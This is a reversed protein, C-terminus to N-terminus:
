PRFFFNFVASREFSVSFDDTSLYTLISFYSSIQLIKSRESCPSEAIRFHIDFQLFKEEPIKEGSAGVLSERGYFEVIQTPFEKSPIIDIFSSNESEM